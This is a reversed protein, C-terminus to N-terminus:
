QMLCYLKFILTMHIVIITASLLSKQPTHLTPKLLLLKRSLSVDSYLIVKPFHISIAACLITCVLCFYLM